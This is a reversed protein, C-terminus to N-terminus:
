RHCATCTLSAPETRAPQASDEPTYGMETIRDPPRLYPAPDRHCDLCWRMTLPAVRRVREMRDVRGHCTECGVGAASHVGHHFVVFDPLSHVRRWPIPTGTEISNRVPEFAPSELWKANHCPVCVETPPVGAYAAREVYAHCYRCDLGFGNVHHRHDFWMPQEPAEDPIAAVNARILLLLVIGIGLGGAAFLAARLATDSWRPLPAPM